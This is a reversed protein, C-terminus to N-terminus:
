IDFYVPKEMTSVSLLNTNNIQDAKITLRIKRIIYDLEHNRIYMKDSFVKFISLSFIGGKISRSQSVCYEPSKAYITCFNFHQLRSEDNPEQIVAALPNKCMIDMESNRTDNEAKIRTKCMNVFLIKPIGFLYNSEQEFMTEISKIDIADNDSTILQTVCTDDGHGLIFLLIADHKHEVVCNCLQKIYKKIDDDTWRQKFNIKDKIESMDNSYITSNDHDDLKYLVKYKYLNVFTNIINTYDNSIGDINPLVLEDYEGVGIIGLLGNKITM